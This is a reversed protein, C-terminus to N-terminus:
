FLLSKANRAQPKEARLKKLMLAARYIFRRLDICSACKAATISGICRPQLAQLLICTSFQTHFSGLTLGRNRLEEREDMRVQVDPRSIDAKIAAKLCSIAQEVINLVSPSHPPLKKPETNPAPNEQNWHAPAADYIFIVQDDLNLNLRADRLFDNFREANM